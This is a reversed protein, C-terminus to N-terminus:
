IPAMVHFRPAFDRRAVIVAPYARQSRCEPGAVSCRRPLKRSFLLGAKELSAPSRLRRVTWFDGLPQQRSNRRVVQGKTQGRPAGHGAMAGGSRGALAHLGRRGFGTQPSTRSCPVKGLDRGSVTEECDSNHSPKKPRRQRAIQPLASFQPHYVSFLVIRPCGREGRRRLMPAHSPRASERVPHSRTLGPSNDDPHHRSSDAAVSRFHEPPHSRHPCPPM